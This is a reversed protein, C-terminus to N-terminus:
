SCTGCRMRIACRRGTTSCRAWRTSWRRRRADLRLDLRGAGGAGAQDGRDGALGDRRLDADVAAQLPRHLVAQLRHGALALSWIAAFLWWGVHGRLAILTFPTYTGAILLYIACHDFVKLRAKAVPHTAAHYLTSALYLLLLTAAFVIAGALQWGDGRAALAVLIVGGVLAAVLGAGSTLASAQDEAALGPSPNPPSTRCPTTEMDAADGRQM